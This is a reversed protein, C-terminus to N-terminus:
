ERLSKLYAMTQPVQKRFSSSEDEIFYHKIGVKKAAKLIAPINLQGTGLAVDNEVSTGGTLDGKVGKRLDKLHMLKWRNPYKLLLKAPDGGGHFVRGEEGGVAGPPHDGRRPLRRRRHGSRGRDRARSSASSRGDRCNLRPGNRQIM